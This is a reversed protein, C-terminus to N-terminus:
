DAPGQDIIVTGALVVREGLTFSVGPALQKIEGPAAIAQAEPKDLAPLGLLADNIEGAIAPLSLACAMLAPLLWSLRKTM